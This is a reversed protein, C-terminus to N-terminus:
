GGLRVAIPNRRRALYSRLAESSVVRRYHRHALLHGPIRLLGGLIGRYRRQSVAYFVASGVQLIGRPWACLPYRLYVFLAANAITGSVLEPSHHCSYDTDHLVRLNPAKLVQYGLAHLQLAIDVEEMGYAVRLPLYGGTELFRSRRYACGCGIFDAVWQMGRNAERVAQGRTFVEAAILAAYPHEAFLELVKAFYDEDIPRSDDDFSAIIEHSAAAILKNRAGGPGVPSESTLTRVGPFSNSIAALCEEGGAEVHVLIEEPCPLSTKLKALTALTEPIRCYATVIATVPCDM